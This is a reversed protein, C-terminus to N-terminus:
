YNSNVNLYQGLLNDAWDTNAYTADLNESGEYCGRVQIDRFEMPAEIQIMEDIHSTEESPPSPLVYPVL